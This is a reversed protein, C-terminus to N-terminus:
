EGSKRRYKDQLNYIFSWFEFSPTNDNVPLGETLLLFKNKQYAERISDSVSNGGGIIPPDIAQMFEEEVEMRKADLTTDDPELLETAELILARHLREGAEKKRDPFHTPFKQELPELVKDYLPSISRAHEQNLGQESLQKALEEIGTPSYDEWKQSDKGNVSFSDVLCCLALINPAAQKLLLDFLLFRFNNVAKIKSEINNGDLSEMLPAFHQDIEETTLGIGSGTLSHFDHIARLHEPMKQSSEFFVVEAGEDKKKLLGKLTEEDYDSHTQGDVSYIMCALPLSEVPNYNILSESFLNQLANIANTSEISSDYGMLASLLDFHKDIDDLTSGVASHILSYYSFETRRSEPLKYCSDHLLATAGPLTLTFM